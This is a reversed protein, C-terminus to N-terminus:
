FGRDVLWLVALVLGAIVFLKVGFIFNSASAAPTNTKDSM